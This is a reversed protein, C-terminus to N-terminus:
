KILILIQPHSYKLIQSTICPGTSFPRGAIGTLYEFVRISLYEVEQLGNWM